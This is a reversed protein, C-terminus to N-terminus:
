KALEVLAKYSRILVVVSAVLDLPLAIKIHVIEDALQQPRRINDPADYMEETSVIEPLQLM